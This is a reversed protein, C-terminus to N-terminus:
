FVWFTGVKKNNILDFILIHYGIYGYSVSVITVFILNRGIYGKNLLLYDFHPNDTLYIFIVHLSDNKMISRREGESLSQDGLLSFFFRNFSKVAIEINILNLQVSFAKLTNLFMEPFFDSKLLMNVEKLENFKGQCSTENICEYAWNKLEKKDPIFFIQSIHVFNPM